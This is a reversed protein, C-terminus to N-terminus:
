ALNMRRLLAEFRPDQRIPDLVPMTRIPIIWPDRADVARNLWDFTGDVDGLGLLVWACASPPVYAVAARQHLEALIARAADGSM